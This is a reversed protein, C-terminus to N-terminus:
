CDDDLAALAEDLCERVGPNTARIYARRIHRRVADEDTM